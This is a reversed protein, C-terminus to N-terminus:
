RRGAQEIAQDLAREEEELRRIDAESMGEEVLHAMASPVDRQGSGTGTTPVPSAPAREAADGGTFASDRARDDDSAPSHPSEAVRASHSEKDRIFDNAPALSTEDTSRAARRRRHRLFFFVLLGILILGAVGVGAGIGAKVGTSLGGSNEELSPTKGLDGTDDSTSTTSTPPVGDSSLDVEGSLSGTISDGQMLWPAGERTFGPKLFENDEVQDQLATQFGSVKNANDVVSFVGLSFDAIEPPGDLVVFMNKGFHDSSAAAMSIKFDYWDYNAYPYVELQNSLIVM